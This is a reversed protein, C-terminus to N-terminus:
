NAEEQRHEYRLVVELRARIDDLKRNLEKLMHIYLNLCCNICLVKGEWIIFDEVTNTNNCESCVLM